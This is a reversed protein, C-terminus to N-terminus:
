REASRAAAARERDAIGAALRARRALEARVLDGQARVGMTALLLDGNPTRRADEDTAIRATTDLPRLDYHYMAVVMYRNTLASSLVLGPYPVLHGEDNMRCVQESPLIGSEWVMVLHQSMPAISTNDHDYRGEEVPPVLSNDHAPVFVTIFDLLVQAIERGRVTIHRQAAARRMVDQHTSLGNNYYARREVFLQTGPDCPQRPRIPPLPGRMPPLPDRYVQQANAGNTSALLSVLGMMIFLTASARM